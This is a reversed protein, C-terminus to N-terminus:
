LESDVVKRVLFGCVLFRPTLSPLFMGIGVQELDSDSLSVRAVLRRFGLNETRPDSTREIQMLLIQFKPPHFKPNSELM